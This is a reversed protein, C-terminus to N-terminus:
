PTDAFALLQRTYDQAPHAFVEACDGHEIVKGNRMVMVQHCLSRVVQLDHSIFLYTLQHRQMQLPWKGGARGADGPHLVIM